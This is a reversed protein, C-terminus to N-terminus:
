GKKEVKKVNKEVAKEKKNLKLHYHRDFKVGSKVVGFVQRVLKHCVAVMAVLHCKGKSRLREYLAKCPLNYRIASRAGMHLLGRIESMGTKAIRGRKRVSSGSQHQSPVIGILKAVQKASTFGEFGNTAQIIAIAIKEGVGVVSMALKYAKDFVQKTMTHLAAEEKALQEELTALINEKGDDVIAVKIPDFSNAHIQNAVMRILKKTQGYSAYLRKIELAKNSPMQMPKPKMMEGYMALSMADTNDNKINSLLVGHTFGHIQKPNLLTVKINEWCLTYNLRRSYTGTAEMIIHTNQRAQLIDIFQRIGKETNKVKKICWKHNLRYGYTFDDKSMDVGIYQTTAEQM